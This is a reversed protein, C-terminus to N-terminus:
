LSYSAFDPSKMEERRGESQSDWPQKGGYMERLSTVLHVIPKSSSDPILEYIEYKLM